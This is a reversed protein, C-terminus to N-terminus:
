ENEVLGLAQKVLLDQRRNHLAMYGGAPAASGPRGAYELQFSPRDRNIVKKM